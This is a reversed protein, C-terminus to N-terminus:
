SAKHSITLELLQSLVPSNVLSLVLIVLWHHFPPKSKRSLTRNWYGKTMKDKDAESQPTLYLPGGLPDGKRLGCAVPWFDDSIGRRSSQKIYTTTYRINLMSFALTTNRNISPNM